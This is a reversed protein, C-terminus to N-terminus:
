VRSSMLEYLFWIIPINPIKSNFTLKFFDGGDAFLGHTYLESLYNM